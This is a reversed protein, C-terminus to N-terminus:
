QYAHSASPQIDETRPMRPLRVSLRGPLHLPVSPSSSSTTTTTTTPPRPRRWPADLVQERHYRANWAANVRAAQQTSHSNRNFAHHLSDYKLLKMKPTKNASTCHDFQQSMSLPSLTHSPQRRHWKMCALIHPLRSYLHKGVRLVNASNKLRKSGLVGYKREHKCPKIQNM